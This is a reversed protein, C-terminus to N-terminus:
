GEGRAMHYAHFRDCRGKRVRPYRRSPPAMRDDRPYDLFIRGERLKKSMKVLFQDPADQAMQNCIDHAMQKAEPWTLKNKGAALPTVVHVGKGGTTRCFSIPGLADLRDRMEKAAEVVTSFPVDPARDLDFVLRGPVEPQKPECNWPNMEMAAVQAVAALGRLRDIRLYPKRDGLDTVLELLNLSTIPRCRVSSKLEAYLAEINGL